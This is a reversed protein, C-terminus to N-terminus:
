GSRHRGSCGDLRARRGARNGARGRNTPHGDNAARSAYNFNASTATTWTWILTSISSQARLSDIASAPCTERKFRPKDSAGGYEAIVVSADVPRGALSGGFTVPPAVPSYYTHIPRAAVAEVGLWAPRSGSLAAMAKMPERDRPLRDSVGCGVSGVQRQM